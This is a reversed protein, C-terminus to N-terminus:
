GLLCPNRRFRFAPGAPVDRAAAAAARKTHTGSVPRSKAPLSGSSRIGPLLPKAPLALLWKIPKFWSYYRQIRARRGLAYDNPVNGRRMKVNLASWVSEYKPLVPRIPAPIDVLRASRRRPGCLVRDASPLAGVAGQPHRRTRVATRRRGNTSLRDQRAGDGRGPGIARTKPRNRSM